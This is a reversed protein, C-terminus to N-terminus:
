RKAILIEQLQELSISKSNYGRSLEVKYERLELELASELASGTKTSHKLTRELPLAQISIRNIAMLPSLKVFNATLDNERDQLEALDSKYKAAIKAKNESLQKLNLKHQEITRLENFSFSDRLDSNMLIFEPMDCYAAYVTSKGKYWRQLETSREMLLKFTNWDRIDSGPNELLWYNVCFLQKDTLLVRLHEYQAVDFTEGGVIRDRYVSARALLDEERTDHTQTSFLIRHSLHINL